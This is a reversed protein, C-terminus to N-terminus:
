HMGKLEFLYSASESEMYAYTRPDDALSVEPKDPLIAGHTSFDLLRSRAGTRLDVQEIRVPRSNKQMTWLSRGDPSYRIVFENSALGPVNQTTGDRM